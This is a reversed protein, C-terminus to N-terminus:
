LQLFSFELTSSSKQRRRIVKLQKEMKILLLAFNSAFLNNFQLMIYKKIDEDSNKTKRSELFNNLHLNEEM